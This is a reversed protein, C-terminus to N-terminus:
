DDSQLIMWYQGRAELEHLILQDLSIRLNKNILNQKHSSPTKTKPLLNCKKSLICLEHKMTLICKPLKVHRLCSLHARQYVSMFFCTSVTCVECSCFVTFIRVGWPWWRCGSSSSSKVWHMWCLRRTVVAVRVVPRRYDTVVNNDVRVRLHCAPTATCMWVFVTCMTVWTLTSMWTRTYTHEAVHVILPLHACKWAIMLLRIVPEPVALHNERKLTLWM